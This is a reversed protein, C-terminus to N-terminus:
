IEQTTQALEFDMMQSTPQKTICKSSKRSGTISSLGGIIDTSAEKVGHNSACRTESYLLQPQVLEHIHPSSRDSQTTHEEYTSATIMVSANLKFVFPM